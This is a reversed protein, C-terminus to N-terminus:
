ILKKDDYLEKYTDIIKYSFNKLSSYTDILCDNKNLEEGVVM